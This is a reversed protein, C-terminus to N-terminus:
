SLSCSFSFLLELLLPGVELERAIRNAHVHGHELITEGPIAKASSITRHTQLESSPEETATTEFSWLHLPENSFDDKAIRSM